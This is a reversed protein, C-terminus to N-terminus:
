DATGTSLRLTIPINYIGPPANLRLTVPGTRFGSGSWKAIVTPTASGLSTLITGEPGAVVALQGSAPAGAEAILEVATGSTLRAGASIEVSAEAPMSDVVHFTLVRTSVQLSSRPAFTAAVHLSSTATSTSASAQNASVEAGLAIAQVISLLSAASAFFRLQPARTL